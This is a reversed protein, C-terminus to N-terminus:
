VVVFMVFLRVWLIDSNVGGIDCVLGVLIVGVVVFVM